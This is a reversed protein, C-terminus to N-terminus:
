RGLLVDGTDTILKEPLQFVRRFINMTGSSLSKVPIPKVEPNDWDGKVEFHVTVLNGKDDTLVWGAIPIRAAILDLTKLPHVGVIGDLKKEILDTKGVISIQMADGSLFLDQIGVVGKDLTLSSTIATYPMGQTTMDPLKLKFLQSVNLLSFIKALASFKKIVGQQAQLEVSGTATRIFDDITAGEATINGNLSLKGTVIRDGVDFYEICQEIAAQELSFNLRYQDPSDSHFEVKGRGKFSGGLVGAELSEVELTQNSYKMGANLRSFELGNIVGSDVHLTLDLSRSAPSAGGSEAYKLDLLRRADDFHIYPSNLNLSVPAGDQYPVQASLVFVSKELAFSLREIRFHDGGATFRTKVERLAVSGDPGHLGIDELRVLSSDLRCSLGAGHLNRMTCRGRVASAGIKARLRSTEMGGDKFTAVGTLSRVREVEDAPQFSVNDFSVSGRWLFSVPDDPDGKGSLRIRCAGAPKFKKLGPFFSAAKRLNLHDSSLNVSVPTKGSFLYSASGGIKQGELDYEFSSVKLEDESLLLVAALLNQRGAPKEIAEGYGYAAGTLRWSADIQFKEAPGKGSLLLASAGEFTLESFKEKGLLWVVEDRAPEMTMKATYVAPGPLAFDSIFGDLRFPTAGFNGKMGSLAFQRNKMELTGDINTFDPAGGAGVSFVGKRVHALVTLVGANEEEMMGAIQSLRGALKGETLTFDGGKVHERIFDGVSSPIIGWPIYSHMEALSFSSSSASVSLGPDDDGMDKISFRGALSIRDIMMRDIELQLQAADRMLHYDIQVVEPQLRKEFVDPYELMAGKVTIKGQADFRSFTGALTAEWNLRGALGSIPVCDRLYPLYHRMDVGTLRLSAELRSEMLPKGSAAPLFTGATQIKGSSENEHIVASIKFRSGRGFRRPEISCQVDALSSELRKAGHAHDIFTLKGNEVVIKKLGLSMEPKAERELLDAINLIGDPSRRLFLQPNKLLTKRLVVRKMLLPLFDVRFYASDIEFLESSGDKEWVTLHTFDISLGHSVSLSAKGSEYTVNRDLAGSMIKMITEKHNDLESLQRSALLWAGAFLIVLVVLLAAIGTLLKKRTNKKM